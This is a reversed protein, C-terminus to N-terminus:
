NVQHKKFNNKAFPLFIISLILGTFIIMTPLDIVLNGFNYNIYESFSFSIASSPLIRLIQNYLWNTESYKLFLPTFLLVIDTILVPFPSKMCSSLLLTFGILALLIMYIVLISLL